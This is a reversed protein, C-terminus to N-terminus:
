HSTAVQIEPTVDVDLAVMTDTFLEPELDGMLNVIVAESEEAVLVILGVIQGDVPKLLMHVTEGEEKIVAVPEWGQDQFRRGMRNMREAVEDANRDIEYIRVRVGDLSRLLAQTDPDDDVHRAAFSLLGSGISITMVNDVNTIGLSDFNAYGPNSRSATLGCGTLLLATVVMSVLKVARPAM